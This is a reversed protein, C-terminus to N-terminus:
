PKGTPVATWHPARKEAIPAHIGHAYWRDPLMVEQGCHEGLWAAWWSYTSNAIIHHSARSMLFLDYLPNSAMRPDHIVEQDAEPFASRCWEPDDSFIHFRADRVRERMLNMANRYYDAGCVGHSPIRLFDTRRVHVAVSTSASIKGMLRTEVALAGHMLGCLETRLEDAMSEFYLPTQFYGFLVCDAPSELFGPDFSQDEGKERLFPCPLLNWYHRGTLNRFARVVPSCRRVVKAKLPLNLFHSVESWGESNFWSADMVLPVGHKEALVRGLAYQFLNNGTRGLLIIRIM